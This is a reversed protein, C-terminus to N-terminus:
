KKRKEMTLYYSEEILPILEELTIATLHISLWYNKNMHYAPYYGPQLRLIEILEPNLKVNLIPWTEQKDINFVSPYVEMYLAYWKKNKLHRFVAYEPHKKFLYEPKTSFRQDLWTFLATKDM